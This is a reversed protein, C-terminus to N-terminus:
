NETYNYITCQVAFEIWYLREELFKKHRTEKLSKYFRLLSRATRIGFKWDPILVASFVNKQMNELTETYTNSFVRIMVDAIGNLLTRHVIARHKLLFLSKMM